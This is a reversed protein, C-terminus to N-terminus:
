LNNQLIDAFGLLQMPLQKFINIVNEPQWENKRKKEKNEM